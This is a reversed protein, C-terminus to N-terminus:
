RKRKPIEMSSITIFSERNEPDLSSYHWPRFLYQPHNSSSDSVNGEQPRLIYISLPTSSVDRQSLNKSTLNDEKRRISPPAIMPDLIKRFNTYALIGKLKALSSMPLKSRFTKRQLSDTVVPLIDWPSTPRLDSKWSSRSLFQKDETLQEIPYVKGKVSGKWYIKQLSDKDIIVDMRPSQIHSVGYYYHIKEQELYIWSEVNGIYHAKRVKNNEFFVILSDSQIQDFMGKRPLQRVSSAQNLVDSRYIADESLVSRITDGMLQLSDSWLIPSGVLTLLSDCSFYAMSDAVGQVDKRFVKGHRYARLFRIKQADKEGQSHNIGEITDASMFLSDKQSYDIAYARETAFFYEEKQHWFGYDGYFNIKKREGIMEVDGFAEGMESKKDYVISDGTFFGEPHNINSRNLLIGVEGETDYFGKDTEITVSDSTITTPSIIRCIHDQTNYYLMDTQLLFNPSEIEVEERFFAEGTKPEYEAHVSTLVNEKDVITGSDDYYALDQNRDYYLTETFLSSSSGNKLVVNGHLIALRTVGDYVLSRSTLTVSDEDKIRIRGFAEFSNTRENLYASDCFMMWSGHQLKVNGSLKQVDPATTQSYSLIDANHLIITKGKAPPPAMRKESLISAGM